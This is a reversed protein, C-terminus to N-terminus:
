AVLSQNDSAHGSVGHVRAREIISEAWRRHTAPECMSGHLGFVGAAGQALIARAESVEIAMPRYAEHMIALQVPHIATKTLLGHEIDLEMEAILVECAAFHEFVPAAVDMGSPLFVSAILRIAAGLPGEYATRTRSRRVGLLNLIDNGGIRIAMVREVHASLSDRMRSLAALDFAEMGEITPMFSHDTDSMVRLWGSLNEVTVKPLVFATICGIEPIKLIRELMQVDRPRVCVMPGSSRNEWTPLMRALRREAEDVEDDRISDELCVIISRVNPDVGAVCDELKPSLAPVYLTAGLEIAKM